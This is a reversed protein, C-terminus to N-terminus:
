AMVRITVSLRIVCSTGRRSCSTGHAIIGDPRLCRTESILELVTANCAQNGLQVFIIAAQAGFPLSHVMRM